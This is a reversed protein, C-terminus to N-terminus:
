NPNSNINISKKTITEFYKLMRESANGDCKYLMQNRVSKRKSSFKEPHNFCDQIVEKLKKPSNLHYCFDQIRKTKKDIRSKHFWYRFIKHRWILKYFTFVIQPKDLVLFEFMVSSADTILLDTLKMFPIINYDEPDIIRVHSYKETIYKALKLDEIYREKYHTYNHLKIILNYGKTDEAIKEKIKGLSSPYYTPAYLITKIHSNLNYKKRYVDLDFFNNKLLPDLKTFGTIYIKTKVGAKILQNKRYESEVFRVDILPNHDRYYSSKVGIGHYMMIIFPKNEETLHLIYGRRAWGIFLIDFDMENLKNIREEETNAIIFKKNEKTFVNLIIDLEHKSHNSYTTFYIDFRDDNKIKQYFPEFQPLHYLLYVEFLIKIKNM